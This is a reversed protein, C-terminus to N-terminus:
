NNKNVKTGLLVKLNNIIKNPNRKFGFINKRTSVFGMLMLESINDLNHAKLLSLEYLFYYSRLQINFILQLLKWISSVSDNKIAYAWPLLKSSAIVREKPEKSTALVIHGSNVYLTNKYSLYHENYIKSLLKIYWPAEEMSQFTIKNKELLNVIDSSLSELCINPLKDVTTQNSM